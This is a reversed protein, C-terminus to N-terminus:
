LADAVRRLEIAMLRLNEASSELASSLARRGLTRGSKEELRWLARMMDPHLCKDALDVLKGDAGEGIGIAERGQGAVDEAGGVRRARDHQVLRIRGACARDLAARKLLRVDVESVFERLHDDGLAGIGRIGLYDRGGVLHSLIKQVDALRM